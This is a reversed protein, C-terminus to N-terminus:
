DVEILDQVVFLESRDLLDFGDPARVHRGGADVRELGLEVLVGVETVEHVEGDLHLGFQVLNVFM